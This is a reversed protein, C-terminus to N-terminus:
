VDNTSPPLTNRRTIVLGQYEWEGADKYQVNEGSIRRTALM